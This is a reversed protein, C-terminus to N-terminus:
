DRQRELQELAEAPDDPLDESDFADDRDHGDEEAAQRRLRKLARERRGERSGARAKAVLVVVLLGAMAVVGGFILSTPGSTGSTAADGVVGASRGVFVPYTRENGEADTDTWLKYFRTLGRVAQGERPTELRGEPDVLYLVAVVEDATGAAEASVVVGWETLYEGWPGPRQTRLERSRGAFRGEVVFLDGRYAGPEALLKGYDPVAAGPVFVDGVEDPPWSAVNILLGTWAPEDPLYGDEATALQIRQAETLDPVGPILGILLSWIGIAAYVM